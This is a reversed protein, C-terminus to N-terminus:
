INKIYKKRTKGNWKLPKEKKQIFLKLTRGEDQIDEIIDIGWFECVRGYESIVTLRDEKRIKM